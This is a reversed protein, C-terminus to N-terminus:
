PDHSETPPQTIPQAAAGRCLSVLFYGFEIDLPIPGDWGAARLEAELKAIARKSPMKSM